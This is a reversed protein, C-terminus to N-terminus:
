KLTAAQTSQLSNILHNTIQDLLKLLRTFQVIGVDKEGSIISIV